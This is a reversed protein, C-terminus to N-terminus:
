MIMNFFLMVIVVSFGMSLVKLFMNDGADGNNIPDWVGFAFFWVNFFAKPLYNFVNSSSVDLLTNNGSFLDNDVSSSKYNEQFYSDSEFRLLVMFANTFAAVVLTM